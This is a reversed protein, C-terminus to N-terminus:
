EHPLIGIIEECIQAVTKDDTRITHQAQAYLAARQQLLKGIKAKPDETELLPRHKHGQINKYIHEASAALYILIGNKKLDTVNRSDLVVGGGCDLIVGQRACVEQVIKRELKRFYAEGRQQFIERISMGEKEEILRDTSLVDRKLIKALMNSVSSKGSGMFGILVINREPM